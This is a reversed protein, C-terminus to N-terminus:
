RSEVRIKIRSNTIKPLVLNEIYSDSTVEVTQHPGILQSAMNRAVPIDDKNVLSLYLFVKKREDSNNRVTATWIYKTKRIKGWVVDLRWEHSLVEVEPLGEPGEAWAESLLPFAQNAGGLILFVVLTLRTFGSLLFVEWGIFSAM